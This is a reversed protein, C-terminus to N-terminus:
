RPQPPQILTKPNRRSSPAAPGRPGRGRRARARPAPGPRPAAHRPPPGPGLTPTVPDRARAACTHWRAAPFLPAAAPREVRASDPPQFADRARARPPAGSCPSRATRARAAAGRAAPSFFPARARARAHCVNWRPPPRLARRPAHPATAHAGRALAHWPSIAYSEDARGAAGPRSRRRSQRRPQKSGVRRGWRGGGGDASGWGGGGGGKGFSGECDGTMRSGLLKREAEVRVDYIDRTAVAGAGGGRGAGSFGRWEGEGAGGGGTEKDGATRGRTAESATEGVTQVLDDAGIRGAGRQEPYVVDAGRAEVAGGAGGAAALAEGQGGQEGGHRGAAALNWHGNGLGRRGRVRGGGHM